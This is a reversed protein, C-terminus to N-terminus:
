TSKGVGRVGHLFFSGKPPTLIRRYQRAPMIDDNKWAFHRCPNCAGACRTNDRKANPACVAFTRPKRGTDCARDCSGSIFCRDAINGFQASPYTVHEQGTLALAQPPTEQANMALAATGLPELRSMGHYQRHSRGVRRYAEGDHQEGCCDRAACGSSSDNSLGLWRDCDQQPLHGGASRVGGELLPQRRYGAEIGLTIRSGRPCGAISPRGSAVADQSDQTTGGIVPQVRVIVSGPTRSIPPRRQRM